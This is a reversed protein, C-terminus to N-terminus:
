GARLQVYIHIDTLLRGGGGSGQSFVADLLEQAGAVCWGPDATAHGARLTTESRENEDRKM